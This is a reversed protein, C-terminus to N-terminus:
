PPPRGGGCEPPRRTLHSRGWLSLPEEREGVSSPDRFTALAHLQRRLKPFYRAPGPLPFLGLLLTVLRPAPPASSPWPPTPSPSTSPNFVGPASPLQNTAQLVRFAMPPRSLGEIANRIRQSASPTSVAKGFAARSYGDQGGAKDTSAPAVGAIWGERHTKRSPM